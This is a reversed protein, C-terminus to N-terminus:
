FSVGLYAVTQKPGDISHGLSMELDFNKCIKYIAGVNMLTLDRNDVSDAGQYFVEVGLNLKDFVDYQMKWGAFIFNKAEDADNIVYGVGGSTSWDQWSKEIWLPLEFWVRNNSVKNNGTPVGVTPAIALSPFGNKGDFFRYKVSVESDGIGHLAPIGEDRSIHEYGLVLSLETDRFLGYKIETAFGKENPNGHTGVYTGSLEYGWSQLDTTDTDDTLYPNAFISHSYALLMLPLFAVIKKM